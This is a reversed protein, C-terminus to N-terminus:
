PAGKKAILDVDIAGVRRCAQIVRLVDGYELVEDGKVVISRDERGRYALALERELDSSSVAKLDVYFNRDEDITITVYDDTAQGSDVGHEAPPLRVEIGERIMPTVVMFVILLILSVNVLPTIDLYIENSTRPKFAM